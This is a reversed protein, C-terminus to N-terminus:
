APRRTLTRWVWSSPVHRGHLVYERTADRAADLRAAAAGLALRGAAARRRPRARRRRRPRRRGRRRGRPSCCRSPTCASTATTPTACCTAWAAAARRSGRGARRAGRRRDLRVKWLAQLHEGCLSTLREVLRGGLRRGARSRRCSGGCCRRPSSPTSRTRSSTPPCWCRTSTCRRRVAARQGRQNQRAAVFSRPNARRAAAVLSLNTTDNDTGAVFGVARGIGARELVAPESATASSRTPTPEAPADRGPEVVTVHLGEARLDFAVERGFRGYGCM